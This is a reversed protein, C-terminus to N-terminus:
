RCVGNFETYRLVNRPQNGIRRALWQLFQFPFVTNGARYFQGAIFVGQAGGGLRHGCHVGREAAKMAVGVATTIVQSPPQTLFEIQRKLADNEAVAGVLDDIKGNASEQERLILDNQRRRREQNVLQRDLRHASFRQGNREHVKGDVQCLDDFTMVGRVFIMKMFLGLLGVPVVM